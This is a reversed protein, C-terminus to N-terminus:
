TNSSISVSLSKLYLNSTRRSIRVIDGHFGRLYAYWIIMPPSWSGREWSLGVDQRKAITPKVWTRRDKWGPSISGSINIIIIKEYCIENECRCRKVKLRYKGLIPCRFVAISHSITKKNFIDKVHTQLIDSQWKQSIVVDSTLSWWWLSQACSSWNSMAANSTAPSASTTSSMSVVPPWTTSRM